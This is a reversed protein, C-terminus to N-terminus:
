KSKPATYTPKYPEAKAAPKPTTVLPEAKVAPKAVPKKIAPRPLKDGIVRKGPEM